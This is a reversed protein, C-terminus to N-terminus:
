IARSSQGVAPDTYRGVMEEQVYVDTVGPTMDLIHIIDACEIWSPTIECGMLRALDDAYMMGRIQDMSTVLEPDIRPRPAAM